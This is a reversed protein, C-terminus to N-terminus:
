LSYIGTFGTGDIADAPIKGAPVTGDSGLLQSLRRAKSYAM